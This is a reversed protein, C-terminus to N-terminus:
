RGEATLKDHLRELDELSYKEGRDMREMRRAMEAKWEEDNEMAIQRVAVAIENFESPTLKRLQSKIESVSMRRFYSARSSKGVRSKERLVSAAM